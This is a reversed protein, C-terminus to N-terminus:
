RQGGPWRIISVNVVALTQEIEVTGSSRAATIEDAAFRRADGDIADALLRGNPGSARGADSAEPTPRHPTAPKTCACRSWL